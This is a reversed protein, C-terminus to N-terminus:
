KFRIPVNLYHKKMQKRYKAMEEVNLHLPPRTEPPLLPEYEVGFTTLQEQLWSKAKVLLAPKALLDLMSGVLVKAGQAEGKHAIPTAPAIGALWNHATAGKVNAPFLIRVHPVAWTIDGSDNSGTGPVALQLPTVKTELGIEKAKAAKQVQRALAQDAESWRPMGLSEINSQAVEALVKNGLVPWVASLINEKWTAGTMLCAGEAMKRAKQYLDRAGQATTERFFFWIKAYDPVVNPQTGGNRIVSHSRQTPPLHERLVDWGIDMLKAADVASIGNWPANSAHATRGFFEFEVSMMAKSIVGYGVKLETDVHVHFAADVDKFYGDRVYFPRSVLQEEAPAGFLKITGPIKHKAMAEKVAFAAGVMTAANTNHGEAHGPAGPVLEKKGETFGPTQSGSPLADFECHVAIVPKGSGYTAMFGTPFGSIGTEVSYGIDRLVQVLLKSTEIEQMGLEGFYFISDGVKAIEDRNRDIAKFATEKPDSKLTSGETKNASTPTRVVVAKQLCVVFNTRAPAISSGAPIPFLFSLGVTGGDVVMAGARCATLWMAGASFERSESAM